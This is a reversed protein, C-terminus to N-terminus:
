FPNENFLKKYKEVLQNLEDELRKVVIQEKSMDSSGKSNILKSRAAEYEGKKKDIQNKLINKKHSSQYTKKRGFIYRLISTFIYSFCADKVVSVFRDVMQDGVSSFNVSNSM